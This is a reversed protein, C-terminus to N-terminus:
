NSDVFEFDIGEALNWLAKPHIKTTQGKSFHFWQDCVALPPFDQPQPIPRAPAPLRADQLFRITKFM